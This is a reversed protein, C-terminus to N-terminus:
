LGHYRYKSPRETKKKERNRRKKSEEEIEKATNEIKKAKEDLAEKFEEDFLTPLGDSPMAAVRDRKSGYLQRELYLIREKLHAIEAM